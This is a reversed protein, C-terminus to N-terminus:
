LILIDKPDWKYFKCLEAQDVSLLLLFPLKVHIRPKCPLEAERPGTDTPGGPGAQQGRM